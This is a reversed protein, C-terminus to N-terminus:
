GGLFAIAADAYAQAIAGLTNDDQLMSAERDNTMYLSEGVVGPMESVRAVRPTQPGVLFLHGFPKGLRSDDHFGADVADVYGAEHLRDILSQQLLAALVHGEAGQPHADAYWTSTGRVRPDTSGNNHISFLLAAGAENATDVRAQLDDDNDIRGDGNRDRAPVNVQTDERRTLVVDYGHDLLLQEVLLALHLNVEKELLDVRGNARHVAGSEYGGHGPDLAIVPRPNVAGEPPVTNEQALGRSPWLVLM